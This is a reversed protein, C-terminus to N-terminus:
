LLSEGPRKGKLLPRLHEAIQWTVDADEAAYQAVRELHDRSLDLLNGQGEPAKREGILSSISIPTYGLFVESLYDMGHRQDPDILSHAIM